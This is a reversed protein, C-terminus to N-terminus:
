RSARLPSSDWSRVSTAASTRRGLVRQGDRHGPQDSEKRDPEGRRLSLEGRRLRLWGALAGVAVTVISALVILAVAGVSAVLLALDGIGVLMWLAISPKTGHHRSHM